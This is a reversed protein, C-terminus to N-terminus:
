PGWSGTQHNCVLDWVIVSTNGMDMLEKVVFDRCFKWTDISFFFWRGLQVAMMLLSYIVMLLFFFLWVLWSVSSGIVDLRFCSLSTKSVWDLLCNSLSFFFVLGTRKFSWLSYLLGEDRRYIRTKVRQRETVNKWGRHYATVRHCHITELNWSSYQCVRPQEEVLVRSSALFWSHMEGWSRNDNEWWIRRMGVVWWLAKNEVGEM